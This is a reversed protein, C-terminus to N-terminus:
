NLNKTPIVKSLQGSLEPTQDLQDLLALFRSEMQPTIEAM